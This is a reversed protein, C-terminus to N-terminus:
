RLCSAQWERPVLGLQEPVSLALQQIGWRYDWSDLEVATKRSNTCECCVDSPVFKHPLQVM